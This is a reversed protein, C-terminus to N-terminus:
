REGEPRPAQPDSPVAPAGQEARKKRRLCERLRAARMHSATSAWQIRELFSDFSMHREFYRAFVDLWRYYEWGRLCVLASSHLQARIEFQVIRADLERDRRGVYLTKFYPPLNASFGHFTSVLDLTFRRHQLRICGLRPRSLCTGMPLKLEFREYMSGDLGWICYVEGNAPPNSGNAGLFIQRDEIPASLLALIRNELLIHPIDGRTLTCVQKDRGDFADFYESLHNSLVQLMCFEIAELLISKEVSAGAQSDLGTRVVAVHSAKKADAGQQTREGSKEPAQPADEGQERLFPESKWSALLAANEVFAGRLASHLMESLDYEDIEVVEKSSQDLLFVGEMQLHVSADKLLFRVFLLAGLIVLFVGVAWKIWILDGVYDSFWASVLNVGLGILAAVFVFQFVNRRSFLTKAVVASM